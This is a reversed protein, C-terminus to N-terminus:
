GRDPEESGELGSGFGVADRGGTGGRFGTREGVRM